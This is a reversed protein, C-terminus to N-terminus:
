TIRINGEKKWGPLVEWGRASHAVPYHLCSKAKCNGHGSDCDFCEQVCKWSSREKQPVFCRCHAIVSNCGSILLLM